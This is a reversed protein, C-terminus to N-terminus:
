YPTATYTANAPMEGPPSWLRLRIDDRRALADTIHRIFLGRWDGLDAPYSTSVMLVRHTGSSGVHTRNLYKGNM